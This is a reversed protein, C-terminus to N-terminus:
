EKSALLKQRQNTVVLIDRCMALYGKHLLAFNGM